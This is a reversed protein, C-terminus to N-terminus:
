YLELEMGSPGTSGKMKLVFNYIMQEDTLDFIGPPVYDLPGYLLCEDEIETAPLRKGKQQDLVDNSLNLLDSLNM